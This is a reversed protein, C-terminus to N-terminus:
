NNRDMAGEETLVMNQLEVGLTDTQRVRGGRDEEKVLSEGPDKLQNRTKEEQWTDTWLM